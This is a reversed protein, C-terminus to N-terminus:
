KKKYGTPCKATTVVKTKKTKINICTLKVATKAAPTPTAAPTSAVPTPAAQPAPAPTPAPTPAPAPAAPKVYTYSSTGLVPVQGNFITITVPGATGAPMTITVSTPTQVWATTALRTSGVDIALIKSLFSGSIVVSNGGVTTGTTPSVGSISSTQSPDPASAPAPTSAAPANYTFGNVLTATGSDANTVVVNVTGTGAPTIATIVTASVRNISTASVGGFTVTPSAAFGTGTITETTGGAEPGTTASISAITPAATISLSFTQSASVSNIDTVTEVINTASLSDSPTGSILGTSSNLSLGKSSLLTVSASSISYTLAGTGLSGTMPTYSATVGGVLTKTSVALTAVPASNVTLLVTQTEVHGATLTSSDAVVITFTENTGATAVTGSIVGTHAGISLGHLGSSGSLTFTDNAAGNSVTIPTVSVSQGVTLTLPSTASNTFAANASDSFGIPLIVAALGVSAALVKRITSNPNAIMRSRYPRAVM